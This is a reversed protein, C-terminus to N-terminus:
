VETLNLVCYLYVWVLEHIHYYHYLINCLAYYRLQWLLFFTNWSLFFNIIQTNIYIYLNKSVCIVCICIYAYLTIFMLLTVYIISINWFYNAKINIFYIITPSTRLYTQLYWVCLLLKNTFKLYCRKNRWYITPPSPQTASMPWLWMLRFTRALM